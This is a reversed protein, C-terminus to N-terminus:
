VPGPSRTPDLALNYSLALFCGNRDTGDRFQFRALSANNVIVTLRNDDEVAGTGQERDLVAARMFICGQVFAVQVGVFARDLTRTVARNEVQVRALRFRQRGKLRHLGERDLDDVPEDYQLDSGQTRLTRKRFTSHSRLEVLDPFRSLNIGARSELQQCLTEVEIVM